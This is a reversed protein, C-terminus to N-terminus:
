YKGMIENLIEAYEPRKRWISDEPLGGEVETKDYYKDSIFRVHYTGEGSQAEKPTNDVIFVTITEETINGVSDVVQYTITASGSATFQTFEDESFNTITFSNCSENELLHTGPLIESDLIEDMAYAGEFLREETILGNRAEDLSFTKDSVTINPAPDWACYLNIIGNNQTTMGAADIIVSSLIEQGEDYTGVHATYDLTWGVFTNRDLEYGNVPLTMNEDYSVTIDDVNGGTAGNGDFHMTYTNPIWVAKFTVVSENSSNLNRFVTECTNDIYGETTRHAGYYHTSNDMGTINWGAFSYGARSPNSVTFETDFKVTNPHYAGFQARTSGVNDNLDYILNYSNVNWKAKIKVTSSSIYSQNPYSKNYGMIFTSASLSHGISNHETISWGSFTYGTMAPTGLDIYTGYEMDCNGSRGSPTGSSSGKNLDVNLRYKNASYYSNTSAAKTVTWSNSDISSWHYGTVDGWASKYLKANFTTGYLHSWTKSGLSTKTHTPSNYSGSAKYYYYNITQKYSNRYVSVYKTNADTVTYSISAAKYASDAARSWSVTSGYNYNTNIVPSYSGWSGDANQYRVYVKQLYSNIKWQAYFTFTDTTESSNIWANDMTWKSGASYITWEEPHAWGYDSQWGKDGCFIANDSARVVAYGTLHYGTKTFGDQLTWNNGFDVTQSAVSGGTAGNGNYNITYTNPALSFSFEPVDSTTMLDGRESYWNMGFVYASACQMTFTHSSSSLTTTNVPFWIDHTTFFQYTDLNTSYQVSTNYWADVYGYELKNFNVCNIEPQYEWHGLSVDYHGDPAVYGLLQGSQAFSDSTGGGSNANYAVVYNDDAHYGVRKNVYNDFSLALGMIRQNDGGWSSAINDYSNNVIDYVYTGDSKYYRQYYARASSIYSSIGTVRPHNFTGSYSLGENKYTSISVYIPEKGIYDLHGVIYKGYIGGSLTYKYIKKRDPSSIYFSANSSGCTWESIFMTNDKEKFKELCYEIYPIEKESDEDLVYEKEAESYVLKSVLVNTNLIETKSKIEEIESDSLSDLLVGVYEPNTDSIYHNLEDNDMSQWDIDLINSTLNYESMSSSGVYQLNDEMNEDEIKNGQSMAAVDLYRGYEKESLNTSYKCLVKEINDIEASKLDAVISSVYACSISTGYTKDYKGLCCFDVTSGYNSFSYEKMNSDMSSVVIASKVNAPYLYKVDSSTNGASVVITIGNDEIEEFLAELEDVNESYVNTNMSLNIVDVKSDIAYRLGKCVNEISTEGNEDAVKIPIISVMEDTNSCILEAIETGHGDNDTVDSSNNMANYVTKVRQSNVEGINLGTDIIAVSVPKTKELNDIYETITGDSTNSFVSFILLVSFIM